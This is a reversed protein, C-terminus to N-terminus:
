LETPFEMSESERIDAGIQAILEDQSDFKKESRLRRLFYVTIKEGYLDGDFGIIFTECSVNQGDDFTPRIGINTVAHYWVGNEKICTAYTSNKPIVAEAPISQNVTPFGLKRGLAKGHHVDSTISYPRGLMKAAVDVEGECIFKRINSSSVALGDLTVQGIIDYHGDFAARLSDPTGAGLKGYKFNFGCVAHVCHCEKKLVTETFDGPSMNRMSPFNGVFVCDLGVAAFLGFKEENTTLIRVGNIFFGSTLTDFCWAGCRIDPYESKLSRAVSVTREILARHGIHVGDFNGICLVTPFDPTIIKGSKLDICIM